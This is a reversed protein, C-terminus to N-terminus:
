NKGKMLELLKEQAKKLNEEARSVEEQAEQVEKGKERKDKYEGLGKKSEWYKTNIQQLKASNLMLKIGRKSFMEGWTKAVMKLVGLTGTKSDFAPLSATDITKWHEKQLDFLEQEEPSLELAPAKEFTKPDMRKQDEKKIESALRNAVFDELGM